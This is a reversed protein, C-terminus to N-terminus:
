LLLLLGEWLLWFRCCCMHRPSNPAGDLSDYLVMRLAVDLLLHRLSCHMSDLAAQFSTFRCFLSRSGGDICRLFDALVDLIDFADVFTSDGGGFLLGREFSSPDDVHPLSNLSDARKFLNYVSRLRWQKGFSM